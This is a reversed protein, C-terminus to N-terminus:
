RVKIGLQSEFRPVVFNWAGMNRPEEQAWIIKKANSYKSIEKNIDATPFPCLEEIRVLAITSTQSLRDREQALAYYHKGSCLIVKEVRFSSSFFIYPHTRNVLKSQFNSTRHLFIVGSFYHLILDSTTRPISM